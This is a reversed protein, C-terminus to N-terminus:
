HHKHHDGHDHGGGTASGEEDSHSKAGLPAVAFEVDIEGAKEFKLTGKVPKGEVPSASLGMFMLHFSGPKLEVTQGPQIELGKDLQKMRMVGDNMSMEHIEMRKSLAFNGGVLHDTQKGTNTITVFGGAVKAGPPTVRTWPHKIKLGAHEYGHAMAPPSLPTPLAAIAAVVLCACIAQFVNNPM